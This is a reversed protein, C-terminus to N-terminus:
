TQRFEPLEQEAPRTWLPRQCFWQEVHARIMTEALPTSRLLAGRVPDDSGNLRLRDVHLSLSDNDPRIILSVFHGFQQASPAPSPECLRAPARFFPTTVCRNNGEGDLLHIQMPASQNLGSSTRLAALVRPILPWAGVGLTIVPEADSLDAANLSSPTTVRRLIQDDPIRSFRTVVARALRENALVRRAFAEVQQSTSPAHLVYSLNLRVISVDM